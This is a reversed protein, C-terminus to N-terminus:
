RRRAIVQMSDRTDIYLFKDHVGFLDVFWSVSRSLARPYNKLRSLWYGYTFIKGYSRTEGVEFGAEALMAAMTTRDFYFLHAPRLGWWRSGLVRATLGGIDPTVLYLIGGPRLVRRVERLEALPDTFHEIVDVLSVADFQADPYRAEALTSADVPIKLQEECYRRAWSSPEVGHVEFHIRAANLLFGHASGVDLLRGSPLHRRIAAMCFYANISRSEAESMYDADETATYGQMLRDLRLRPNMYVLACSRCEVVRGYAGFQDTTALFHKLDRLSEESIPRDFRVRADPSGCLGCRVEEWLPETTM